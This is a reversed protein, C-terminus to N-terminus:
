EFDMTNTRSSLKPSNDGLLLQIRSILFLLLSIRVVISLLGGLLTKHSDQGKFKLQIRHGFMDSRKILKKLGM